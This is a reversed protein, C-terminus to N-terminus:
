RVPPQYGHMDIIFQERDAVLDITEQDFYDGASLRKSTNTKNKRADLFAQREEVKLTCGAKVLAEILDEELHETRIIFSVLRNTEFARNIGDRYSLEPDKYLDDSLKTFLKLCRYTMLGFRRSVPSFGFGEGMDFRRDLSYMM